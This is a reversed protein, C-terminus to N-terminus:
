QTRSSLSQKSSFGVSQSVTLSKPPKTIMVSSFNLSNAVGTPYTFCCFPPGRLYKVPAEKTSQAKEVEFLLSVIRKYSTSLKRYILCRPVVFFCIHLSRSTDILLLRTFKRAVRTISQIHELKNKSCYDLM